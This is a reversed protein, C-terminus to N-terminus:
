PILKETHQERTETKIVELDFLIYTILIVGSSNKDGKYM